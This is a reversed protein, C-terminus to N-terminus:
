KKNILTIIRKTNVMFIIIAAQIYMGILGLSSAIGYGHRQKLESNKAEIKYHKKTKEKFYDSTQFKKQQGHLDSLISVSYSKSKAGTKYCSENIPCCKCREIDFYYTMTQNNNINKAGRKAKRLAQYGQPCCYMGSDKNFNFKDEERRAGNSIKPHLKAILHM